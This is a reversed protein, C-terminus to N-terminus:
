YNPLPVGATDKNVSFTYFTGTALLSEGNLEWGYVNDAHPALMRDFEITTSVGTAVTIPDKAAGVPNQHRFSFYAFEQDAVLKTDVADLLRFLDEFTFNNNEM